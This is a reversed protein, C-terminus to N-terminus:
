VRADKGGQKLLQRNGGWFSGTRVVQFSRRDAGECAGHKQMFGKGENQECEEIQRMGQSSGDGESTVLAPHNKGLSEEYNKNKM